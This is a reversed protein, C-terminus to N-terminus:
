DEVKGTKHNYKEMVKKYIEKFSLEENWVEAFKKALGSDFWKMSASEGLDAKNRESEEYKFKHMAQIQVLMRIDDHRSEVINRFLCFGGHCDCSEESLEHIKKKYIKEDLM